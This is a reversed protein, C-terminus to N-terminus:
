RGVEMNYKRLLWEHKRLDLDSFSEQLEIDMPGLEGQKAEGEGGEEGGGEKIYSFAAIATNPLLEDM